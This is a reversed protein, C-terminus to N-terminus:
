ADSPGEDAESLPAAGPHDAGAADAEEVDIEKPAPAEPRDLAAAAALRGWAEVDLDEARSEPSVGATEFAGPTVLGALARRLMKRRTAFGARVLAFLTTAGVIAPDVTPVARRRISVLVSEVKPKPHFVSPPVRGALSADAWYAIKVSVAGYGADGPHAVLREGVERQVMVLMREIVSVSDL